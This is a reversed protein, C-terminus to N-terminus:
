QLSWAGLCLTAARLPWAATFAHHTFLRHYGISIGLQVLAVMGLCFIWESPHALSHRFEPPVLIVVLGMSTLFFSTNVPDWDKVSSM